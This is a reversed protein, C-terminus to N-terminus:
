GVAGDRPEPAGPAVHVLVLDMVNHGTPGTRLLGGEAAFFTYADNDALADGAEVGARRGRAVTGGDAFAGAADTPGDIGDSGVALLTVGRVGDLAAAAALALEQSRGGRGGGRVTVTTEGGAVFWRAGSARAEAVLVPGIERAEGVFPTERVSVQGPGELRKLHVAAGAQADRNTAIAHTGVARSPRADSEPGSLYARVADPISAAGPAHRELIALAEARTGPGPHFPGSAVVCPDDGVVDSVFAVEIRAARTAALLRGGAAALLQRRVANLAAIDAGGRLLLRTVDRVDGLALGPRPASLLSSTGGSIAAVLIADKSGEGVFALARRGAVESAADPVPHDGEVVGSKLGPLAAGVPVVVLGAEMRAGAWREVVDAMAAAAKGAAFLRLPADEPLPRGAIALGEAHRTLLARLRPELDVARLAADFADRLTARSDPDPRDSM